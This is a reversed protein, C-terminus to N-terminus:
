TRRYASYNSRLGSTYNVSTQAFQLSMTPRVHLGCECNRRRWSWCRLKQSMREFSSMKTAESTATVTATQRRQRAATAALRCTTPPRQCMLIETETPAQRDWSTQTHAKQRQIKSSVENARPTQRELSVSRRKNCATCCRVAFM